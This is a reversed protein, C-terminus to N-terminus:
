LWALQQRQSANTVANNLADIVVDASLTPDVRQVVEIV